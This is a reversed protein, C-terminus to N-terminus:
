ERMAGCFRRYGHVCVRHHLTYYIKIYLGLRTKHLVRVTIMVYITQFSISVVWLSLSKVFVACSLQIVYVEIVDHLICVVKTLVPIKKQSKIKL